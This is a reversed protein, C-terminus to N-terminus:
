FQTQFQLPKSCLMKVDKDIKNIVHNKPPSGIQNNQKPIECLLFNLLVEGTGVRFSQCGKAISRQEYLFENLTRTVDLHLQHTLQDAQRDTDDTQGGALGDIQGDM